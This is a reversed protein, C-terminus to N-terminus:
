FKGAWKNYYERAVNMNIRKLQAVVSEFEAATSPINEALPIGATITGTPAAYQGSIIDQLIQKEAQIEPSLESPRGGLFQPVVKELWTPEQYEEERLRKMASIKQTPSVVKPEELGAEKVSIQASNMAKLRANLIALEQQPSDKDFLDSDKIAKISADMEDLARQRKKEEREFDLRSRLEMKEIEWLKSRERMQLDIVADQQRMATQYEFREQLEQRRAQIEQKRRAEAEQKGVLAGAGYLGAIGPQEIRIAM